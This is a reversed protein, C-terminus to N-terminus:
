RRRRVTESNLYLGCIQQLMGAYGTGGLFREKEVLVTRAGERAAAVAAATGAVGGGIVLVDCMTQMM